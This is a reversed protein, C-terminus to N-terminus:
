RAASQASGNARVEPHRRSKQRRYYIETLAFLPGGTCLPVLYYIVRFM